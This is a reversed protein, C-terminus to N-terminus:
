KASGISELNYKFDVKYDGAKITIIRKDGSVSSGLVNDSSGQKVLAKLVNLDFKIVKLLSVDVIKDKYYFDNETKYFEKIFFIRSNINFFTVATRIRYLIKVPILSIIFKLFIFLFFLNALIGVFIFYHKLYNGM